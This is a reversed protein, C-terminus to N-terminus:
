ESGPLEPNEHEDAFANYLRFNTQPTISLYNQLMWREVGEPSVMAFFRRGPVEFNMHKTKSTYPKPAWWLDLLEAKTFADWVLSQEADFERVISVTKNPKDIIFDFFLDNNM